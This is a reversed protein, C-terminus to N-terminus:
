EDEKKDFTLKGPFDFASERADLKFKTLPSSQDTLNSRSTSPQPSLTQGTRPELLISLVDSTVSTSPSARPTGHIPPPPTERAPQQKGTLREWYRAFNQVPKGSKGIMMDPTSQSTGAPLETTKFTLDDMGNNPVFNLRGPSADDDGEIHPMRPSAAVGNVGHNNTRPMVHVEGTNAANDFGAGRTSQETRNGGHRNLQLRFAEGYEPHNTLPTEQFSLTIEPKM